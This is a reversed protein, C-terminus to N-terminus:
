TSIGRGVWEGWPVLMAKHGHDELLAPLGGVSSDKCSQFLVLRDIAEQAEGLAGSSPGQVERSLLELGFAIQWAGIAERLWPKGDQYATDDKTIQCDRQMYSRWVEGGQFDM